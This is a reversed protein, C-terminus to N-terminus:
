STGSSTPCIHHVLGWGWKKLVQQPKGVIREDDAMAQRFPAPVRGRQLLVDREGIQREVIDPLRAREVLVRGHHLIGPAALVIEGIQAVRAGIGVQQQEFQRVAIEGDGDRAGEKVGGEHLREPRGGHPQAVLAQGGDGRFRLLFGGIVHAV